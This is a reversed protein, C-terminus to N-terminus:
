YNFPANYLYLTYKFAAHPQRPSTLACVPPTFYHGYSIINIRLLNRM